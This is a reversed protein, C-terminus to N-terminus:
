ARSLILVIDWMIFFGAMWFWPKNKTHASDTFWILNAVLYFVWPLVSTSAISPSIMIITSGIFLGNALWKLPEWHRSSCLRKLSPLQHVALFWDNAKEVFYMWALSNM